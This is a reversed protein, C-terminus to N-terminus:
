SVGGPYNLSVMHSKNLRNVLAVYVDYTLEYVHELVNINEDANFPDFYYDWPSRNTGTGYIDTTYFKNPNLSIGSFIITPTSEEDFTDNTIFVLEIQISKSNQTNHPPYSQAVNGKGLELYINGEKFIGEYVPTELARRQEFVTPTISDLISIINNIHSNYKLRYAEDTRFEYGLQGRIQESLTQFYSNSSNLTFDWDELLCNNILPFEQIPFLEQFIPIACKPITTIKPNLMDHRWADFSEKTMISSV